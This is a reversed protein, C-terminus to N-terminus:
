IVEQVSPPVDVTCDANGAHFRSATREKCLHVDQTGASHEAIYTLLEPLQQGSTDMSWMILLLPYAGDARSKGDELEDTLM